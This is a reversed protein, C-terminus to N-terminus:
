ELYGDIALLSPIFDDDVRSIIHYRDIKGRNDTGHPVAPNIIYAKGVEMVYEREGNEGFHFIAGEDSQLPIHIKRTRGDVHTLTYLGPHHNTIIMQKLARESMFGQLKQMYGFDYAKLLKSDNYLDYQDLEPFLERNLHVQSPIPIDREIPWTLTYGSIHGIYNTVRNENIYRNYTAENLIEKMDFTFLLHKRNDVIEKLYEALGLPNLRFNLEIVDWDLSQLFDYDLEKLGKVYKM